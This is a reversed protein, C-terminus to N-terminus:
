TNTVNIGFQSSKPSNTAGALTETVTITKNGSTTFTGTITNGTVTLATADSSTAAITSGATTGTVTGTYETNKVAKTPTLDLADLVDLPQSPFWLVQGDSVFTLQISVNAGDNAGYQINTAVFKGEYFGSDVADEADEGMFFRFKVGKKGAISRLLGAQARNFLGTGAIDFQEGTVNVIRVPVSVPDTCDRIFEDSTTFQHTLNRSTLGCLLTPTTDGTPYFVGVDFYQGQVISPISM